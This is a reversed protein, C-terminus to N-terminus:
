FYFGQKEKSRDKLHINESISLFGINNKPEQSNRITKNINVDLVDPIEQINELDKDNTNNDQSNKELNNNKVLIEESRFIKSSHDENILESHIEESKNISNTLNKNREKFFFGIIKKKSGSSALSPPNSASQISQKLLEPNDFIKM